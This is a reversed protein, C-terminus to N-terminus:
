TIAGIGRIPGALVQSLSLDLPQNLRGLVVAPAMAVCGHDQQGKPVTQSTRAGNLAIQAVLRDLMGDAVGLQRRRAKPTQKPILRSRASQWALGGSPFAYPVAVAGARRLSHGLIPLSASVPGPSGTLKSTAAGRERRAM